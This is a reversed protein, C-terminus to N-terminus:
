CTCWYHHLPPTLLIATEGIALGAALKLVTPFIDMTSALEFSTRGISGAALTRTNQQCEREIRISVGLSLLPPHLLIATGGVALAAPPSEGRGDSSPQCASIPRSPALSGCGSTTLAEHKVVTWSQRM